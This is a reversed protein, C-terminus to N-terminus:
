ALSWSSIGIAVVGALMLALMEGNSNGGNLGGLIAGVVMLMGVILGISPTFVCIALAVLIVLIQKLARSM